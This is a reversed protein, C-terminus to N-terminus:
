VEKVTIKSLDIEGLNHEYAYRIMLVDQPQLGFLTSCYADVSVINTGAVIKQAKKSEGPGAPGNTTLFETADVICLDPKRVLNVDAICQSLFDIDDYYRFYKLLGGKGSGQHFFKNTSSTCAGMM